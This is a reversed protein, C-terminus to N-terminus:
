FLVGEKNRTINVDLDHGLNAMDRGFKQFDVSLMSTVSNLKLDPPDLM